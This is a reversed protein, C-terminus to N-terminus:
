GSFGSQPVYSMSPAVSYTVEISDGPALLHKGPIATPNLWSDTGRLIRIKSVAGAQLVVEVYSGVSNTWTFPSANVSINARPKHPYIYATADADYISSWQTATGNDVFGGAGTNWHNVTVDEVRAKTAAADIQIREFYGGQVICQRGQILFKHSSYCNIYRSSIGNDSVDASSANLNEFGVGAFLNYRSKESVM